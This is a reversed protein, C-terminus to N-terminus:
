CGNCISRPPVFDPAFSVPLTVALRPQDPPFPPAPLPSARNVATLAARDAMDSGTKEVLRAESIVGARDVLFTVVARRKKAPSMGKPWALHSRIRTAAERAWRSEEGAAAAGTSLNALLVLVSILRLITPM